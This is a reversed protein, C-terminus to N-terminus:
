RKELVVNAVAYHQEDAISIHCHAIGNSTFFTDAADFVRVIPRGSQEHEIQMMQWSIGRGIGTGMAKVIAEKAAFKKALYREPQKSDKWQTMEFDTLIRAAFKDSKQCAEAIRSIEVIDCGIGFIM